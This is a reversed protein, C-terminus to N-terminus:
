VTIGSLETEVEDLSPRDDPVRETCRSALRRWSPLMVQDVDTQGTLTFTMLKGLSFVDASPHATAGDLQEPPAFGPTGHGQFTRGQTVVRSLNKSIGFDGLKWRRKALLVNEAKLDRHVVEISHLERLGTLVELTIAKAESPTLAKHSRVYNALTGGDAFETVLALHNEDREFAHIHLVNVADCRQLKNYIDLERRLADAPIGSVPVKKLFYVGGDPSRVKFGESMGGSEIREVIEYNAFLREVANNAGLATAESRVLSVGFDKIVEEADRGAIPKGTAREILDLVSRAREHLFVEFDDARLPKPDIAHTALIEDIQAPKIGNREIRELYTRPSVGGLRTNTRKTLPTKNLVSDYRARAKGQKECWDVPFIHHIDVQDDFYRSREIEDGQFFDRAGVQLLQAMVGKYAASGRTRLSLLRRPAFNCDRVTSPEPGGDVWALVEQLDHGFRTENAGGYLEGFVGCWYWRLLKSRGPEEIARPGLAAIIAAMPILQSHYPLVGADFVCERDLLQAARLFGREIDGAIAQYDALNLDLVDRKKCGVYTRGDKLPPRRLLSVLTVAQLFDTGEVNAVLPFQALRKSRAKWDERLDVDDAAFSATVLEFVDLAKGGTNVKEFVMCVAERSTDRALEISPLRYNQITDIVQPEFRDWLTSKERDHQHFDDFARRWARTSQGDFVVAAPICLNKYEAESTSLDLDVKRNFDSRLQKTAPMSLIADIRDTAGDVCKAIDFYYIREIEDGKANVTRVPKGSKLALYLSTLRQQGDLVLREEKATSAPAGEFLRSKFKMGGGCELLLVAGVPWGQSVSALLDRIRDDDWVWSRQFDPLQLSGRHVHNLLDSLPPQDPKFQFQPM